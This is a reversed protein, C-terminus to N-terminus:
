SQSPYRPGLEEKIWELWKIHSLASDVSLEILEVGLKRFGEYRRAFAVLGTTCVPMFDAPPQLPIFWRERMDDPLKLEGKQTLVTIESFGEGISPAALPM